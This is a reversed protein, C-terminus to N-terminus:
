HKILWTPKNSSGSSIKTLTSSTVQTSSCSRQWWKLGTNPGIWAVVTCRGTRNKSLRFVSQKSNQKSQNSNRERSILLWFSWTSGVRRPWVVQCIRLFSWRAKILWNFWANRCTMLRKPHKPKRSPKLKSPTVSLSSTLCPSISCRKGNSM